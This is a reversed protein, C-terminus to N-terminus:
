CGFGLSAHEGWWVLAKETPPSYVLRSTSAGLGLVEGRGRSLSSGCGPRSKNLFLALCANVGQPRDWGTSSSNHELVLQMREQQCADLVIIQTFQFIIQIKIAKLM